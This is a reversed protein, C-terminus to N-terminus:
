WGLKANAPGVGYDAANVRMWQYAANLEKVDAAMGSEHLSRTPWAAAFGRTTNQPRYTVGNWTVPQGLSNAKIQAQQEHTRYFSSFSVPQGTAAEAARTLAALSSAFEPNLQGANVGQGRSALYAIEPSAGAPVDYSPAGYPLGLVNTFPSAMTQRKSNLSFRHHSPGRTWM